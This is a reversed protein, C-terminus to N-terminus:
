KTSVEDPTAAGAQAFAGQSAGDDPREVLQRPDGLVTVGRAAARRRRCTRAEDHPWSPPSQASTLGRLLEFDAKAVKSAPSM